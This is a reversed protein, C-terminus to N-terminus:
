AAGKVEARKMWEVAAAEARALMHHLDAIQQEKEALKRELEHLSAHSHSLLQDLEAVRLLINEALNSM